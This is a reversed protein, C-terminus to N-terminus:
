LELIVIRFIKNLQYCELSCGFLILNKIESSGLFAMNYALYKFVHQKWIKRWFVFSFVALYIFFFIRQNLTRLFISWPGRSRGSVELINRLSLSSYVIASFNKREKPQVSVQVFPATFASFYRYIWHYKLAFWSLSKLAYPCDQFEQSDGMGKFCFLFTALKVQSQAQHLFTVKVLDWDYPGSLHSLLYLCKSGSSRLKIGPVCM